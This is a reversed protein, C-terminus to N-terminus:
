RRCSDKSLRGYRLYSGDASEYKTLFVGGAELLLRFEPDQCIDWAAGDLQKGLESVSVSTEDEALRIRGNITTGDLGLEVLTRGQSMRKPLQPQAISVVEELLDQVSQPPIARARSRIEAVESRSLGPEGPRSVVIWVALAVLGGCILYPLYKQM